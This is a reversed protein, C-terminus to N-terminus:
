TWGSLQVYHTINGCLYRYILDIILGSTTAFLDYGLIGFYDM